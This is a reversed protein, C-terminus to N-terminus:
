REVPTDARGGWETWAGDYVAVRDRGLLYLGLALVPATIGSGCTTVVPRDLDVGAAEFLRRLEDRGLLTGDKSSLLEYPLNLSGPIHGARLGPRPEPETGVFRGRSRADLVQERRHTLNARMADLDRVLRRHLRATYRRARPAPLGSEVPRGEARWRPLGGDLVAVRAHGFARFTWWVRAASVVGRTDYVVVRDANTIGLRGVRDAFRRASPLMHPLLTGPDAIEDIDFFVAGPVHAEVFEEFAERKLDPLHWSGDVVRLNRGGLNAALWATTVLAPPKV